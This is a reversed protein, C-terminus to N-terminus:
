TNSGNSNKAIMKSLSNKNIMSHMDEHIIDHTHIYLSFRIMFNFQMVDLFRKQWFKGNM